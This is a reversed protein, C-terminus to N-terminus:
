RGKKGQGKAPPVLGLQQAFAAGNWFGWSGVLKGEGDFKWIQLFNLSMKKKTRKLGMSRVDGDNTGAFVGQQVVYDGAAWMTTTTISLDSFGKFLDDHAKISQELNWDAPMGSESWVLGPSMLDAVAELDHKNFAEIIKEVSALNRKEEDDDKAVVTESAMAKDVVPRAPAKSLGLQAFMTGMDLYFWEKSVRQGDEGFVVAHAVRLGIKKQTAPIEGGPMALPGTHTGTFLAVTAANKGSVLTLEVEGKVDPMATATPKAHQEVIAAAGTVPPTGSDVWDSVADAGYCTQFGAWDKANFLGWCEQYRKALDDGTPAAKVPEPSAPQAPPPTPPAQQPEAPAEKKRCGLSVVLLASVLWPSRRM